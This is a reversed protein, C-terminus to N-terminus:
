AAIWWQRVLFCVFGFETTFQCNPANGKESSKGKMNCIVLMWLHHQAKQYRNEPLVHRSEGGPKTLFHCHMFLTLKTELCSSWTCSFATGSGGHSLLNDSGLQHAACPQSDRAWYWELGDQHNTISVNLQAQPLLKCIAGHGHTTIPLFVTICPPATVCDWTIWERPLAGKAFGTHTEVM